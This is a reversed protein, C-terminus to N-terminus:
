VQAHNGDSFECNIDYDIGRQEDYDKSKENEIVTVSVVERGIAASLFSRLANRSEKTNQTFIAKFNADLRPNLINFNAKSKM